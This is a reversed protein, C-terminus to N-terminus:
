RWQKHQTASLPYLPIAAHNHNILSHDAMPNICWAFTLHESTEYSGVRDTNM